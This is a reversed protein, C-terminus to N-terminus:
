HDSRSFFRNKFRYRGSGFGGGSLTWKVDHTSFYIQSGEMLVQIVGRIYSAGEYLGGSM